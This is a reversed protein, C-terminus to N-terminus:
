TNIFCYQMIKGRQPMIRLNSEPIGAALFLKRFEDEGRYILYWEAVWEMWAASVNNFRNMVNAILMLGDAKLLRRLNGILRVAVMEDLYDFLGASYILDYRHPIDNNIDKKFALRIANKQFFNVNARNNLMQRAYELARIDFDYCDFNVDSSFVEFDMELLEKIERAPGSALNMIRINKDKRNKIFDSIIEKFNEKRERTARAIDLQQFYNDWLRAFGVTTPKNQYIDDIIKFDGSYGYPKDLCWKILQGHLFFHRYRKEFIKKLKYVKLEDGGINEKEYLLIANYVNDLTLNFTDQFRHWDDPCKSLHAQLSRALKIYDKVESFITSSTIVM